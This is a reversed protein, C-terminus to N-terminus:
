LFGHGEGGFFSGRLEGPPTGRDFVIFLVIIVQGSPDIRPFGPRAPVHVHELVHADAQGDHGRRKERRDEKGASAGSLNSNDHCLGPANDLM